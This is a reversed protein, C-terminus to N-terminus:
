HIKLHVSWHPLDFSAICLWKLWNAMDHSNFHCKL